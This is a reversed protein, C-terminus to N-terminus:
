KKRNFANIYTSIVREVALLLGVDATALLNSIRAIVIFREEM